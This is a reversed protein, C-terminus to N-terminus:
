RLLIKVTNIYEEMSMFKEIPDNGPSLHFFTELENDPYLYFETWKGKELNLYGSASDKIVFGLTKLEEM